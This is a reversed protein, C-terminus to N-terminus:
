SATNGDTETEDKPEEKVADMQELEILEAEEDYDPDNLKEMRAKHQEIRSTYANIRAEHFTLEVAKRDIGEIGATLAAEIDKYNTYSFTIPQVGKAPSSIMADYKIKGPEGMNGVSIQIQYDLTNDKLSKRILRKVLKELKLLQESASNNQQPM